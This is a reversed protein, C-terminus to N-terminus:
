NLNCVLLQLVSFNCLGLNIFVVMTKATTQIQEIDARWREGTMYVLM